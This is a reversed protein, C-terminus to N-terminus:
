HQFGFWIECWRYKNSLGYKREWIYIGIVQSIVYETIYSIIETFSYCTVNFPNCYTYHSDHISMSLWEWGNNIWHLNRVDTKVYRWCDLLLYYRKILYSHGRTYWRCTTILYRIVSIHSAFFSTRAKLVEIPKRRYSLSKVTPISRKNGM